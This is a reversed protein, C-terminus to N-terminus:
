KIPKFDSKNEVLNCALLDYNVADLILIMTELAWKLLNGFKVVPDYKLKSFLMPGLLLRWWEALSNRRQQSRSHEQHSYVDVGDWWFVGGERGSRSSM